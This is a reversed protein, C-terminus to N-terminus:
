SINNSGNCRGLHFKIQETLLSLFLLVLLPGVLSRWVRRCEFLDVLMEEGVVGVSAKLIPFGRCPQEVVREVGVAPDVFIPPADGIPLALCVLPNEVTLFGLLFM